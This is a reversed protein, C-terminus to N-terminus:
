LLSLPRGPSGLLLDRLWGKHFAWGLARPPLDELFKNCAWGIVTAPILLVLGQLVFGWSSGLVSDAAPGYGGRVVAIVLNFVILITFFLIVAFGTVRWGSRPRGARNVFIDQIEM